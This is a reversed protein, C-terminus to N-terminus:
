LKIYHQVVIGKAEEQQKEDLGYQYFNTAVFCFPALYLEQRSMGYIYILSRSDNNFKATSPALYNAEPGPRNIGLSSGRRGM